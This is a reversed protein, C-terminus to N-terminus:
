RLFATRDLINSLPRGSHKITTGDLNQDPSLTSLWPLRRTIDTDIPDDTMEISVDVVTFGNGFSRDTGSPKIERVTLPNSTDDFVVFYLDTNGIISERDGKMKVIKDLIQTDNLGRLKKEFTLGVVYNPWALLLVIFLTPFDPLDIAVAQGHAESNIGGGRKTMIVEIVSSGTFTKGSKGIVGTLRYRYRWSPGWVQCGALAGAGLAISGAVIQRRTPSLIM